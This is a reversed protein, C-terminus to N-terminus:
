YIVMAGFCACANTGVFCFRLYKQCLPRWWWSRYRLWNLNSRIRYFFPWYCYARIKTTKIKWDSRDVYWSFACRLAHTRARAIYALLAFTKWNWWKDGYLSQNSHTNLTWNMKKKNEKITESLTHESNVHPTWQTRALCERNFRSKIVKAMACFTWRLM